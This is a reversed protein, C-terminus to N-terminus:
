INLKGDKNLIKYNKLIKIREEYDDTLEFLAQIEELTSHLEEIQEDKKNHLEDIKLETELTVLSPQFEYIKKSGQNELITNVQNTMEIIIKQIEDEKKINAVNEKYEEEIAKRKREKYLDLIQMEKEEKKNIRDITITTEKISIDNKSTILELENDQWFRNECQKIIELQEAIPGNIPNLEQEIRRLQYVNDEFPSVKINNCINFLYESAFSNEKPRVIDGIKFM